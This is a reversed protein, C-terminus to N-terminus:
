VIIATIILGLLGTLGLYIALYSLNIKLVKRESHAGLGVIALAALINHIAIVNGASSEMGQMAIIISEKNGSMLAATQQISSFLLNSVTAGGAVFAGLAGIIPAILVTVVQGAGSFIYAASVIMNPLGTNNIGSNLMIQVFVLITVLVMAPKIIKRVVNNVIEIKYDGRDRIFLYVFFGIAVVFFAAAPSLLPSLTYNIGTGFIAPINITWAERLFLNIESLRTMALLTAVIIYPAFPIINRISFKPLKIKKLANQAFTYLSIILMGGIGGAISTLEPGLLHFAAFSPVSVALSAFIIFAFNNRVDRWRDKEKSAIFLIAAVVLPATLINLIVIISAAELALSEGVVFAMGYTIPLGAAGFAVPLSGGILSIIVSTIPAVGIAILIPAAIMAPTGFGSIGELFAILAWAILVIKIKYDPSIKDFIQQAAHEGRMKKFIELVLLAGFIIAIIELAVFIGKISAAFMTTPAIQWVFISTGLLAVLALATSTLFNRLSFFALLILIVIPFVAILSTIM